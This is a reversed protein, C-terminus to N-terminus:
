LQGPEFQTESIVQRYAHDSRLSVLEPENQVDKLLYGRELAKGLDRIANSRDGAIEYVVCSKFYSDPTRNSTLELRRICDLARKIEGSKVTYLSLYGLLQADNPRSSLREEAIRIAHRYADLAEKKHGPIWRHADGLNGWYLQATPNLEVTKEYAAAADAYRGQIFRLTALNNYTSASPQIELARQLVSAADNDRNMKLYVAALRSLVMINDESLVRAREWEAAAREYKASKMLFVGYYIHPSWDDRNLEVALKYHQEAQDLNGKKFFYEGMWMHAMPNHPDLELARDLEPFADGDKPSQVLVIGRAVHALALDDNLEVAKRSSELALRSWLPDPMLSNKRDYAEALGAFAPAFKPDREVAKKFLEIAMDINEPRDYRKLIFRGHRTWESATLSRAPTSAPDIVKGPKIDESRTLITRFVRGFATLERSVTQAITSNTTTMKSLVARLGEALASMTGWRRTLDKELAKQVINELAEPIEPRNMRLKPAPEIQIKQLTVMPSKGEFPRMGTFMEYLVVGFSFIDSRADLPKGLAQEPSMYSVSGMIAGPDTLTEDITRTSSDTEPTDFRKALGFDLIKVIGDETVMINSPKLDRHIIGASHAKAIGDAVQIAYSLANTLPLGRPQLIQSLSKGKVYEMVILHSGESSEVEYITVINPHNLSSATRAERLFRERLSPAAFKNDPLMKVAVIRDLRLDKAKFVVGMGGEGIKEFIEYHTIVRKM